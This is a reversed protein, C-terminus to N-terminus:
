PSSTSTLLWWRTSEELPLPRDKAASGLANEMAKVRSREPDFNVYSYLHEVLEGFDKYETTTTFTGHDVLDAGCRGVAAAAKEYAEDEDDVLKFCRNFPSGSEPELVLIRGGEKLVRRAQALANGPDPHHHLSLSFIVTDFINDALPLSEGSGLVLRVGKGLLYRAKEISGPDPDLALITDSVKLFEATLRGDGCGIELVSGASPGLIDIIFRSEVNEPDCIM